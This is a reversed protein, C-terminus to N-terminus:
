WEEMEEELAYQRDMEECHEKYRVDQIHICEASGCTAVSTSGYWLRAPKGCSSDCKGTIAVEDSM